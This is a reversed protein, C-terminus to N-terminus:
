EEEGTKCYEMVISGNAGCAIDPSTPNSLAPCEFDAWLAGPELERVTTLYCSPYDPTSSLQLTRPTYVSVNILNTAATGSKKATGGMTFNIIGGPKTIQPDTGGGDSNFSGNKRVTCSIDVGSKGDEVRTGACDPAPCRTAPQPSDVQIVGGVTSAKGIDWQIGTNAPCQKGAAATVTSSPNKIEMYLGLRAPRAPADSCGISALAVIAATIPLPRLMM